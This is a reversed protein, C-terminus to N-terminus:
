WQNSTEYQWEILQAGAYHKFIDKEADTWSDWRNNYSKANPLKRYASNPSFVPPTFPSIESFRCLNQFINDFDVLLDEYRVLQYQLQRQENKINNFAEMGEAWQRCLLEFNEDQKKQRRKRMQSAVQNRGDRYVLIFYAEPFLTTLFKLCRANWNPTKELFRRGQSATYLLQEYLKRIESVFIEPTINNEAWPTSKQWENFLMKYWDNLEALKWILWAEKIYTLEPSESLSKAIWTTGSRGMGCVFVAPKVNDPKSQITM